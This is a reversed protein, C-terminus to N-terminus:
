RLQLEGYTSLHRVPVAYHRRMTYDSDELPFVPLAACFSRDYLYKPVKVAAVRFSVPDPILIPFFQLFLVPYSLYPLDAKTQRTM